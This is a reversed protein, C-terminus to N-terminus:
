KWFKWWPRRKLPASSFEIPHQIFRQLYKIQADRSWKPMCPQQEAILGEVSHWKYIDTM